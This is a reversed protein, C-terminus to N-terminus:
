SFIIPIYGVPLINGAMKLQLCMPLCTSPTRHCVSYFVMAYRSASSLCSHFLESMSVNFFHVSAPQFCLFIRPTAFCASSLSSSSSLMICYQLNAIIFHCNSFTSGEFIEVFFCLFARDSCLEITM